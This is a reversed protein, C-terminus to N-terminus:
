IVAVSEIKKVRGPVKPKGEDASAAAAFCLALSKLNKRASHTPERDEEIACLLEGMTGHFGDPFWTGRLRPSCIGGETSLVLKQDSLSPGQSELTGHSGIVRTSDRQGYLCNGNFAFSAQGKEYEVSAQALLPPKAKQNPCCALSASVRRPARGGFLVTAIDFWHIAFDYLILHHIRDFTSGAVWNHNWNVSFEASLVEGLIGAGVAQRIYSWHPAWRGNQNVALKVGKQDALDVLRQGVELDLVFPKQSLIHKGAQIASELIEVREPPHTAIDVVEIDDRKLLKRYDTYIQAEPYFETRRREARKKTLDCLAVVRYGAKSYARLHQETIGGCAILGIAPRYRRPDPPRYPLDPAEM